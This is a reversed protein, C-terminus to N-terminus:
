ASVRDFREVVPDREIGAAAFPEHQTHADTKLVDAEFWEIVGFVFVGFGVIRALTIQKAVAGYCFRRRFTDLCNARDQEREWRSLAPTLTGKFEVADSPTDAKQVSWRRQVM